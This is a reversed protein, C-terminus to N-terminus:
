ETQRFIQGVFSYFMNRNFTPHAESIENDLEIELYDFTM